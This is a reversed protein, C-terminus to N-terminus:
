FDKTIILGFANKNTWLSQMFCMEIGNLKFIIDKEQMTFVALNLNRFLFHLKEIWSFITSDLTFKTWIPKLLKQPLM